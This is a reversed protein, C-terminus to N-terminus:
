FTEKSAPLAAGGPGGHLPWRSPFASEPRVFGGGEDVPGGTYGLLCQALLFRVRRLPDLLHYPLLRLSRHRHAVNWPSAVLRRGIQRLGGVVGAPSGPPRCVSASAKRFDAASACGTAPVSM